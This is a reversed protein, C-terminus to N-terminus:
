NYLKQLTEIVIPIVKLFKITKNKDNKLTEQEAQLFDTTAQILNRAETECALFLFQCTQFSLFDQLAKYVFHCVQLSGVNM